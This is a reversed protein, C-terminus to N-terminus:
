ASLCLKSSVHLEYFRKVNPARLKKSIESVLVYNEQDTRYLTCNRIMSFALRIMRNGLAVYAQRPHKGRDKLALYRIKM